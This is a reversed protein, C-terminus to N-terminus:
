NWEDTSSSVPRKEFVLRYHDMLERKFCVQNPSKLFIDIWYRFEDDSLCKRLLKWLIQYKRFGPKRLRSKWVDMTNIYDLRGNSESVFRFHPQANEQIMELDIALWSGPYRKETLALIYADSRKPANIDIEEYPIMNKGFIMTQLYLRGGAPLLDSVTRFFSRYVEEQQGNLYEEVSCFHEFAGSSVIADFTGIDSPTVTLCNKLQVDLGNKRCANMQGQSLTLGLCEAGVTNQAYNLFPGWGCGMDLVRSGKVIGLSQCIYEYKNIQAQELTISFDGDYKAGSIDGFEGISLRYLEDIFTYAFDLDQQTAM